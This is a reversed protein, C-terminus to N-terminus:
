DDIVVRSARVRGDSMLMGDVEVERENRLSRCSGGNFRTDATTYVAIGNVTFSVTLCTGELGTVRGKLQIPRVPSPEPEPTPPPPEPSPSPSPSPEPAPAPGPGPSPGPAPAASISPQRASVHVGAVVADVTRDAGSNPAATIRVSGDGRGSAPAVSAWGVQSVATWTCAAHTRVNAVVEGGQASIVDPASSVAFRCPAAQQAIDVRREGVLLASQRAVPEGNEDIRYSVTGEGQGQAGSTIAIWSAQASVAWACERAVAVSLTGTGGGPGFSAASATVSPQCRGDTPATLSTSTSTSTGCGSLVLAALVVRFPLALRVAAM